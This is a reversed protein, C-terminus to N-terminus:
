NIALKHGILARSIPYIIKNVLKEREERDEIGAVLPASKILANAMVTSDVSPAPECMGGIRYIDLADDDDTFIISDPIGMLHGAYRWM